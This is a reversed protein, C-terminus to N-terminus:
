CRRSYVLFSVAIWSFLLLCPGQTGEEQDAKLNSRTVAAFDSYYECVCLRGTVEGVTLLGPLQGANSCILVRAIKWSVESGLDPSRSLAVLHLRTRIPGRLTRHWAAKDVVPMHELTAWSLQLVSRCARRSVVQDVRGINQLTTARSRVFGVQTKVLRRGTPLVPAVM